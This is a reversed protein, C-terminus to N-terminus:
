SFDLENASDREKNVECKDIPFYIYTCFQLMSYSKYLKKSFYVNKKGLPFYENSLPNKEGFFSFFKKRGREIISIHRQSLSFFLSLSM